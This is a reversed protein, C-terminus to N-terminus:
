IFTYTLNLFISTIININTKTSLIRNYRLINETHKKQVSCIEDMIEM